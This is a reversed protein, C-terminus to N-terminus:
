TQSNSNAYQYKKFHQLQKSAQDNFKLCPKGFVNSYAQGETRRAYNKKVTFLSVYIVM